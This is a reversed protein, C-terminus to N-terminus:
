YNKKGKKKYYSKDKIILNELDVNEMNEPNDDM